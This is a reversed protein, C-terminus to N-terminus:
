NGGLAPCTFSLRGTQEMGCWDSPQQFHVSGESLGGPFYLSTQGYGRNTAEPDLNYFLTTGDM